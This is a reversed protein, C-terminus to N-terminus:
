VLQSIIGALGLSSVGSTLCNHYCLALERIKGAIDVRLSTVETSGTYRISRSSLLLGKPRRFRGPTGKGKIEGFKKARAWGMFFVDTTERVGERTSTIYGDPELIKRARKRLVRRDKMYSVFSANRSCHIGRSSEWSATLAVFLKRGAHDFFTVQFETPRRIPTKSKKVCGDYSGCDLLGASRGNIKAQRNEM